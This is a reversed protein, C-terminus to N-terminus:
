WITKVHTAQIKLDRTILPIQLHLATAAIIRDPMDPVNERPIRYIQEVVAEDVPVVLLGSAPDKLGAELQQLAAFPLRVREMLYITEIISIASLYCPMGKSIASRIARLARQSLRKPESVYWIASHTDLLASM